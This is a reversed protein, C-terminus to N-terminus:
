GCGLSRFPPTLDVTPALGPMLRDKGTARRLKDRCTAEGAGAKAELHEICTKLTQERLTTAKTPSAFTTAAAWGSGIINRQGVGAAATSNQVSRIPVM